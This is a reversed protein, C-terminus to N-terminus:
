MVQVIEEQAIVFVHDGPAPTITAMGTFGGFAPLVGVHQGFWFCPLKLRQRGGGNLAVGPHIHGALVYGHESARPHHDLVFPADVHPADVVEIGWEEPPDGAHMDHNGRVLLLEIAAHQARWASITEFTQRARGQRAHILDGLLVVRRAGTRILASSLRALDDSTTGGPMAIGAARFAAAKGWHVDAVFLTERRPWYVAREPLLTLTENGIEVHM